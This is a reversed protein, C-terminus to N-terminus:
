RMKAFPKAEYLKDDKEESYNKIEHLNINFSSDKEKM